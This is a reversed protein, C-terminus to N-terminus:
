LLGTAFVAGVSVKRKLPMKLQWIAYLPLALILSDSLVNWSGTVIFNATGNLCTGPLLFNWIKARPRCQLIVVLTDAFYFLFNGWILAHISWYVIAPKKTPTFIHKYQLLVTLKALWITPGYVIEIVNGLQTTAYAEVPLLLFCPIKAVTGPRNQYHKRRVREMSSSRSRCGWHSYRHWLVNRIRGARKDASLDSINDRRLGTAGLLCYVYRCLLSNALTLAAPSLNRCDELKMKKDFRFRVILRATMLLTTLVVCIAVTGLLADYQPNHVHFNPTEGAPAPLGPQESLPVEM